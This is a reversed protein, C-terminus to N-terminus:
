VLAAFFPVWEALVAEPVEEVLYHGGQLPKGAVFDAHERWLALCDFHAAIAGNAGWLALLPMQLKTQDAGDHAIDITYAARYDECCAHITAPDCFARLYEELPQRAFPSSGASGSCCKKIWFTRPDHSIMWEPFPAKQVLWYWHWYTAAFASTADRYMERTPAIDLTALGLVRAPHDAALRHAVRAGRDNAGILFAAHGLHNMLSLLDKAMERKSYTLHRDCSEPKSSQGYGRLDACIVQFYEALRPAVEHWIASTQPYGHLLLM